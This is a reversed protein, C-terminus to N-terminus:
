DESDPELEEGKHFTKTDTLVGNQDYFRWVGTREYDGTSENMQRMGEEKLQGNRYYEKSSYIRNKEDVIELTSQPNGDMYYFNYKLYYEHKGDWEEIFEINGNPYYDEWKIPEKKIYEVRSRITGDKYYVVLEARSSNLVKFSRELQENDFYNEYGNTIQGNLYYAKHKLVGNPHFDRMIGSYPRGKLLRISDGGTFVNYKEYELIPDAVEDTVNEINDFWDDSQGLFVLPLCVLWFVWLIRM